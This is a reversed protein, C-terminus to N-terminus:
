ELSTLGNRIAYKTLEPITYLELKKMTNNKHVDVTKSSLFLLEAIEKSSNGEAILQLVEIERSSLEKDVIVEERNLLTLYSQDIKKSLYKKNQHVSNIATILESSDGDKLLYAYAGAKFMGQIFQKNAHMSLGIIKIHPHKKHIQKTAEVGNLGSMAVDTIVVDPLLKNCQEIAARGDSAEGIIHLNTKQEIISRLGDRLIKHDDVLLLRIVEPPNM